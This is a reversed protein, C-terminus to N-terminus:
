LLGFRTAQLVAILAVMDNPPLDQDMLEASKVTVFTEALLHRPLMKTILLVFGAQTIPSVKRTLTQGEYLM